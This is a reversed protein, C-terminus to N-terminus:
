YRNGSGKEKVFRMLSATDAIAGTEGCFRAFEDPNVQIETVSGINGCLRLAERVADQQVPLWKAYTPPLNHGMLSRFAEYDSKAIFPVPITAM